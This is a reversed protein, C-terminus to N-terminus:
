VRVNAIKRIILIGVIELIIAGTFFKEGIPDTWLLRIYEPNFIYSVLGV